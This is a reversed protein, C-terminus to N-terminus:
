PKADGPEESNWNASKLLAQAKELAAHPVYLNTGRLMDHAASGLEVVDFDQGKALCPIGEAELLSKLLGVEIGNIGEALLAYSEDRSKM